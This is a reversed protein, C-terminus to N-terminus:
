LGIVKALIERMIEDTGGGIPGLRSDRAAREIEYEAMYGAGGHMQLCDDILDFASRQTILKAMTVEMVVEEGAAFRALADYTVTRAAHITTAHDALRHRLVQFSGIPRGFAERQAVFEVTRDFTVQMAAVAGLSMLLREWQFNAMILKFGDHEAGLLNADPVFVDDLAILATDSAHWGMKEIKSAEYGPQDTDVILFSIGHHGGQATTKVATVVFDARVGNTIFMKSGNVSWGGDVRTARTKIAAVDSGADPETIGLAAIREGRIAPVLYRQKLDETGFKWIPPTAIGIHAGIGAALGGSGCRSLEETLVADHLYGGGQGGYQEPYKLGLFGLAGMRAFVDDPFWRAEEWDRAHPRLENAVFRRISDRLEEHEASFPNV